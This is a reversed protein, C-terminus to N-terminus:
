RAGDASDGILVGQNTEAASAPVDPIAYMIRSTADVTARVQTTMVDASTDVPNEIVDASTDVTKTAVVAATEAPTAPVKPPAVPRKRAVKRVMAKLPPWATVLKENPIVHAIGKKVRQFWWELSGAANETGYPREALGGRCLSEKTKTTNSRSVVRTSAVVSRVTLTSPAKAKTNSQIAM